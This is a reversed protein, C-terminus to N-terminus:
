TMPEQFIMGIGAGRVARMDPVSLSLLNRGEFAIHAGPELRGPKPVLRTMARATISNASGSGGVLARSAGPAISLRARDVALVAAVEGPSSISLNEVALLPASM